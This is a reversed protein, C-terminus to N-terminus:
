VAYHDVYKNIGKEHLLLLRSVQEAGGVIM